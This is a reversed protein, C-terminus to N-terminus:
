LEVPFVQLVPNGPPGHLFSPSLRDILAFFRGNPSWTLNTPGYQMAYTLLLEGSHADWMWLSLPYSYGLAALYKGDPSWVPDELQGQVSQCRVLTHGSHLDWVQIVSQGQSLTALAARKGDPSIVDRTVQSLSSGQHFV